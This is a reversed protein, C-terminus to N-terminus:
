SPFRLLGDQLINVMIFTTQNNHHNNDRTKLLRPFSYKSKKKNHTKTPFISRIVTKIRRVVRYFRELITFYYYDPFIDYHHVSPCVSTVVIDTVM